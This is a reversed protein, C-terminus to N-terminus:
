VATERIVQRVLGLGLQLSLGLRSRSEDGLILRFFLFELSRPLLKSM